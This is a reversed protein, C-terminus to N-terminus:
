RKRKGKRQAKAKPKREKKAETKVNKEETTKRTKTIKANEIRSIQEVLPAICLEDIDLLVEDLVKRDLESLDDVFDKVHEFVRLKQKLVENKNVLQQFTPM